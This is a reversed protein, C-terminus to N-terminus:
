TIRHSETYIIYIYIDTHFDIHIYDNDKSPVNIPKFLILHIQGWVAVHVTTEDVECDNKNSVLSIQCSSAFWKGCLFRPPEM